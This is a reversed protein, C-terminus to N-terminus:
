FGVVRGIIDSNPYKFEFVMPDISPYIIDNITAGEMDFAFDSYGLSTGAKNTIQVNKVTQVGEVKDLLIYLHKYVIPMNLNWKDIEFYNKLAEICDTLVTNNNFNPLVMIDFEIGINIIYADKITIADGIMRYEALYTKLNQKLTASATRLKKNSDYSLNDGFFGVLYYFIFTSVLTM